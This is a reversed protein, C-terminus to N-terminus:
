AKEAVLPFKVSIYSPSVPNLTHCFWVWEVDLPPLIMPPSSGVVTLDSVLPMWLEDYRCILGVSEFGAWQGIM